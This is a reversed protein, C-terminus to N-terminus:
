RAFRFRIAVRCVPQVLQYKCFSYFLPAVAMYFIACNVGSGHIHADFADDAKRYNGSLYERGELM